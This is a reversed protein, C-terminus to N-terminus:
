VNILDEEDKRRLDEEALEGCRVANALWLLANRASQAEVQFRAIAATDAPSVLELKELAKFRAVQAQNELYESLVPGLRQTVEIGLKVQNILRLDESDFTEPSKRVLNTIKTKLDNLIKTM